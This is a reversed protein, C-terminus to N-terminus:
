EGEKTGTAAARIAQAVSEASIAMAMDRSRQPGIPYVNAFRRHRAAAKWAVRECREREDAVMAQAEALTILQGSRHANVLAEAYAADDSHKWEAIRKRDASYVASLQHSTDWTAMPATEAEPAFRPNFQCWKGPSAWRSAQALQEALGKDVVLAPINYTM